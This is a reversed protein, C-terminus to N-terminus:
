LGKGDGVRGREGKEAWDYFTIMLQKKQIQIDAQKLHKMCIFSHLMHKEVDSKEKSLM